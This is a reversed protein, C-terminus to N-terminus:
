TYGEVFVKDLKFCICKMWNSAIKMIHGGAATHIASPTICLILIILLSVEEVLRKLIMIIIIMIINIM